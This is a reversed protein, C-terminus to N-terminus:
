KDISIKLAVGHRRQSARLAELQEGKLLGESVKLTNLEPWAKLSQFCSTDLNECKEINLVTISSLRTLQKLDTNSISSKSLFLKKLCSIESLAKIEESTLRCKSLVIKRLVKSEKLQVLLPLINDCNELDLIILRNIFTCQALKNADFQSNALRLFELSSLNNVSESQDDPISSNNLQLERLEKLQCINKIFLEQDSSNGSINLAWLDNAEFKELLQPYAKLIENGALERVTYEPFTMSGQAQTDPYHGSNGKCYFNGLSFSNPFNLTILRGGPAAKHTSFKKRNEKLYAEVKDRTAQDLVPATTLSNDKQAEPNSPLYPLGRAQDEQEKQRIKAATAEAQKKLQAKSRSLGVVITAILAGSLLAVAATFIVINKTNFFNTQAQQKDLDQDNERYKDSKQGGRSNLFDNQAPELGQDLEEGREIKLLDQAVENLSSYRDEPRKELMKAVVTELDPAFDIGAVESLKPPKNMQHMMTTEIATKGLLPPKGTLAQFLTVGVSYLDSRQDVRQGLCQEPSMYLPSGFVEGPKTLGQITNGGTDTLKAIGFDVIKVDNGILMINGPKIDRHIIGHEHAYALGACIQRFIPLADSQDLRGNDQLYDALSDGVLLDMTYFPVGDDTQSMDYIRVINAHDLRAIAKGEAQFRKWIAETLCETKLIKLALIKAMLMHEVKYVLGMGGEGIFDIIKYSGGFITGNELQNFNAM